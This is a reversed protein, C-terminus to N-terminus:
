KVIFYSESQPFSRGTFNPYVIRFVFDSADNNETSDPEGNEYIPSEQDREKKPSPSSSHHLRNSGKRRLKPFVKGAICVVDFYLVYICMYNLQLKCDNAM